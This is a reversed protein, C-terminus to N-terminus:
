QKQEGKRFILLNYIFGAAAALLIVAIVNIKFVVLLATSLLVLIIDFYKKIVKQWMKILSYTILSSIGLLIGIFVKKVIPNDTYNWFFVTLLLVIIFTPAIAAATATAAGLLGGTKYGVMTSINAMIAGPLTQSIASIDLLEEHTIWKRKEVAEREILPIVTYGGGFAICGIKFFSIFIQLLKYLKNGSEM